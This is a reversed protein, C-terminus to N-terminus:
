PVGPLTHLTSARLCRSTPPSKERPSATLVSIWEVGSHPAGSSHHMGAYAWESQLWLLVATMGQEASETWEPQEEEGFHFEPQLTVQKICHLLNLVCCTYLTVITLAEASCSSSVKFIKFVRHKSQLLCTIAACHTFSAQLSLACTLLVIFIIVLWLNVLM